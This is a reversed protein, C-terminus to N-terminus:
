NGVLNKVEQIDAKLGDLTPTTAQALEDSQSHADIYRSFKEHLKKAANLNDQNMTAKPINFMQINEKWRTIVGGFIKEEVAKEV